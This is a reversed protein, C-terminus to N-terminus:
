ARSFFATRLNAERVIARWRARRREPVDPGLVYLARIVGAEIRASADFRSRGPRGHFDAAFDAFTLHM